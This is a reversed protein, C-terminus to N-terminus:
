NSLIAGQTAILFLIPRYSVTLYRSLIDDEPKQMYYINKPVNGGKIYQM